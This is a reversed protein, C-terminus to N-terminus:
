RLRVVNGTVLNAADTCLWAIVEAVEAPAAVHHHDDSEAVFRRVDDTVWGTDTVPPYVVNATIGLPALEISATMTYNELAAKAAGYSAEGPFGAPGGSTLSIIRGWGGGRRQHRDALEAILLAGARADVLFQTEFSTASVVETARGFRDATWPVFTDKRWGSANHVLISVPGLKDEAEDFLQAPVEPDSLDAEAVHCRAGAAEITARVDDAGQRRQVDYEPPRGPDAVSDIRLYTVAVDAGLEALATATAAGIGHNAGTVLAVRGGLPQTPSAAHSM